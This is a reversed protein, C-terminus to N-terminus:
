QIEIGRRQPYRNYEVAHPVRPVDGHHIQLYVVGSALYYIIIPCSSGNHGSQTYKDSPTNDLGAAAHLIHFSVKM